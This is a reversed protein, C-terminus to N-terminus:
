LECEWIIIVNWGESELSEKKKRDREVNEAFKTTWFEVRSKPTYALKCGEHRHWYCGHVFIATKTERIVIDPKGPLDAPNTEYEVGMDDLIQRVKIEPKTGSSRIRSMNWSRHEPTLKDM